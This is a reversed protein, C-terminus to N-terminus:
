DERSAPCEEKKRDLLREEPRSSMIRKQQSFVFSDKRCFNRRKYIIPYFMAGGHKYVLLQVRKSFAFKREPTQVSNKGILKVSKWGRKLVNMKVYSLFM